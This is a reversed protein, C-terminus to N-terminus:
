RFPSTRLHAANSVGFGVSGASHKDTVYVTHHGPSLGPHQFYFSRLTAGSNFPFPMYVAGTEPPSWHLAISGRSPITAYISSVKGPHPPDDAYYLTPKYSYGSLSGSIRFTQGSHPYGPKNVIITV